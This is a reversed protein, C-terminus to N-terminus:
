RRPLMISTPGSGYDPQQSDRRVIGTGDDPNPLAGVKNGAIM